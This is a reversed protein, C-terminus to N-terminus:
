QIPMCSADFLSCSPFPKHNIHTQIKYFSTHHAVVLSLYCQATLEATSVPLVVFTQTYNVCTVSLRELKIKCPYRQCRWVGGLSPRIIINFFRLLIIGYSLVRVLQNSITTITLYETVPDLKSECHM